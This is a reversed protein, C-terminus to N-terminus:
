DDQDKYVIYGITARRAQAKPWNRLALLPIKCVIRIWYSSVKADVVKRLFTM